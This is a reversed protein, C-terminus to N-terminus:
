DANTTHEKQQDEWRQRMVTRLYATVARLEIQIKLPLERKLLDAAAQELEQPLYGGIEPDISGPREWTGSLYAVGEVEEGGVITKATIDTNYCEFDEQDGWEPQWRGPWKDIVWEVSFVVSPALVKLHSQYEPIKM